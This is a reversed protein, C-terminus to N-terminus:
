VEYNKTVMNYGLNDNIFKINNFQWFWNTTVFSDRNHVNYMGFECRYDALRNAM